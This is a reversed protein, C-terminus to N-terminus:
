VALRGAPAVRLQDVDVPPDIGASKSEMPLFYRALEPRAGHDQRAIAQLARAFQELLAFNTDLRVRLAADDVVPEGLEAQLRRLWM